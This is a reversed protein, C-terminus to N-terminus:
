DQSKRRRRDSQLAGCVAEHLNDDARICRLAARIILSDNTRMEYSTSLFASLQRMKAIDEPYLWFTFGQPKGKKKKPKDPAAALVPPVFPPPEVDTQLEAAGGAGAAPLAPPPEPVSAEAEARLATAVPAEDGASPQATESNIVPAQRAMTEQARKRLEEMPDGLIAAQPDYKAKAM